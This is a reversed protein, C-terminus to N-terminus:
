LITSQLDDNYGEDSDDGDDDDEQETGTKRGGKQRV